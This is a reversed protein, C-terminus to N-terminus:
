IKLNRKKELFFNNEGKIRLALTTLPWEFLVHCKKPEKRVGTEGHSMKSEFNIKAHQLM